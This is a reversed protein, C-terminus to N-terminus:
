GALRFWGPLARVLAEDGTVHMAKTAIQSAADKGAEGVLMRLLNALTMSVTAQPSPAHGTRVEVGSETRAVSLHREGEPTSLEFQVVGRPEAPAAPDVVGPLISVAVHGIVTDVGLREVGEYLTGDNRGAVKGRLDALTSPM